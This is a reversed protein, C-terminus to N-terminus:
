VKMSFRHSCCVCGNTGDFGTHKPFSTVTKKWCETHVFPRTTSILYTIAGPESSRSGQGKLSAAARGELTTWASSAWRRYRRSRSWKKRVFLTQM